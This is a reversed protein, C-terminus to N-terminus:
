CLLQLCCVNQYTEGSSADNVLAQGQNILVTSLSTILPKIHAQAQAFIGALLTLHLSELPSNSLPQAIRVCPVKWLECLQANVAEVQQQAEAAYSPGPQLLSEVQGAPAHLNDKHVWVGNRLSFDKKLM